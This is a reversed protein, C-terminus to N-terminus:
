VVTNIDTGSVKKWIARSSNRWYLNSTYSGNSDEVYIFLNQWSGSSTSNIFVLLVGYAYADSPSGKAQGANDAMFIRFPSNSDTIITDWDNPARYTKM